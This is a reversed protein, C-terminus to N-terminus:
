LNNKFKLNGKNCMAEYMDTLLMSQVARFQYM